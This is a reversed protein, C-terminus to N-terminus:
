KKLEESGPPAWLPHFNSMAVGWFAMACKPDEDIVKAFAKEAEDYEFSHLLALGLEFDKRTEKSCSTEFNVAGFQKDPPGCLILEGRKLALTGTEFKDPSANNGSCASLLLLFIWQLGWSFFSKKNKM